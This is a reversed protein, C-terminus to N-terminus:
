ASKKRLMMDERAGLDAGYGRLCDSSDRGLKGCHLNLIVQPPLQPLVKLPQLIHPGVSAPPM